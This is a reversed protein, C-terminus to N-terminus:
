TSQFLSIIEQSVNSDSLPNALVAELARSRVEDSDNTLLPLFTKYVLHLLQLEEVILCALKSNRLVFKEVLKKLEDDDRNFKCLKCFQLNLKLEEIDGKFDGLYKALYGNPVTSKLYCFIKIGAPSPESSNYSSAENCPPLRKLDNLELKQFLFELENFSVGNFSDIEYM